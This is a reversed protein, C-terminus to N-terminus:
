GDGGRVPNASGDYETGPLAVHKSCPAGRATTNNLLVAHCARGPIIAGSGGRRRFAEQVRLKADRRSFPGGHWVDRTRHNGM